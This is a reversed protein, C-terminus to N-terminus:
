PGDVPERALLHALEARSAVGLRRYLSRVQNMVTFRSRGRNRAIAALSLGAFLQEAIEREAPPVSAPLRPRPLSVMLVAGVLEGHSFTVAELLPPGPLSVAKAIRTRM